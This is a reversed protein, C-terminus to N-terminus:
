ARSITRSIRPLGITTGAWSCGGLLAAMPVFALGAAIPSYGLVQQLYLTVFYWMSIMVSGLLFVAVNATALARRRFIGVPILPAASRFEIL